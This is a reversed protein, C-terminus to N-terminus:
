IVEKKEERKKRSKKSEKKRRECSWYCCIKGGGICKIWDCVNFFFAVRVYEHSMFFMFSKVSEYYKELYYYAYVNSWIILLMYIYLFSM